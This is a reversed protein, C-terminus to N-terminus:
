AGPGVIDGKFWAVTINYNCIQLRLFQPEFFNFLQVLTVSSHCLLVPIQVWILKIEFGSIKGFYCWFYSLKSSSIKKVFWRCPPGWEHHLCQSMWLLSVTSVVESGTQLPTSLSRNIWDSARVDLLLWFSSSLDVTDACIFTVFCQCLQFIVDSLSVSLGCLM